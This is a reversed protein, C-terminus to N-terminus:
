KSTDWTETNMLHLDVKNKTKLEVENFDVRANETLQTLGIKLHQKKASLTMMLSGLDATYVCELADHGAGFWASSTFRTYETKCIITEQLRLSWRESQM